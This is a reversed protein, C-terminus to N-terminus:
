CWVGAPRIIVAADVFEVFAGIVDEVDEEVAANILRLSEAVVDIAVEGALGLADVEERHDELLTSLAFPSEVEKAVRAVDGV